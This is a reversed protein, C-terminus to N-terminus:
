FGGETPFKPAKGNDWEHCIVIKDSQEEARKEIIGIRRKQNTIENNHSNLDREIENIRKTTTIFMGLCGVTVLISALVTLLLIIGM